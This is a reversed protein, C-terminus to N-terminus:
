DNFAWKTIRFQLAIFLIYNHLQQLVHAHCNDNDTMQVAPYNSFETVTGAAPDAASM